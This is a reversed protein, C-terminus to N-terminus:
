RSGPQSRARLIEMQRKGQSGQKKSGAQKHRGRHRGRFRHEQGDQIGDGNRDVFPTKAAQQNETKGEKNKTKEEKKQAKEEKKEAKEEKKEAKEEKKEAQEKAKKEPTNPSSSEDARAPLGFGGVLWFCLVSLIIHIKKM